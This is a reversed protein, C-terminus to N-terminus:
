NFALLKAPVMEIASIQVMKFSVKTHYRGFQLNSALFSPPDTLEATPLRIQRCFKSSYGKRKCTWHTYKGSNRKQALSQFLSVTFSAKWVIERLISVNEGSFFICVPRPSTSSEEKKNERLLRSTFCTVIDKEGKVTAKQRPITPRRMIRGKTRNSRFRSAPWLLFNRRNLPISPVSERETNKEDIFNLEREM